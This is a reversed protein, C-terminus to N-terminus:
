LFQFIITSCVILTLIYFASMVAIVPYKITATAGITGLITRCTRRASWVRSQKAQIRREEYTLTLQPVDYLVKQIQENFDNIKEKNPVIQLLKTSKILQAAIGQNYVYDKM